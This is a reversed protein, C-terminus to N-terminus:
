LTAQYGGDLVKQLVMSCDVATIKGDCSVDAIDIYNEVDKEIPMSYSNNLVKTLINSADSATLIGDNDVNSYVAVYVNFSFLVFMLLSIFIGIIKKM